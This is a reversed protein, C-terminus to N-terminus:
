LKYKKDIQNQTVRLLDLFRLYDTHEKSNSKIMELISKYDKNFNQIKEAIPECHMTLRHMLQAARVVTDNSYESKDWNNNALYKMFIILRDVQGKKGSLLESDPNDYSVEILITDNVSSRGSLIQTQFGDGIYTWTNNELNPSYSVIKGNIKVENPPFTLHMRIEYAREELMGSYSGQVPEVTVISKNGEKKWSVNTFAYEGKLYNDDNGADEYVSVNGSEGPIINLILPDVPKEKTNNMRPQMPIISGAKAFLPIDNLTYSREVVQGGKIITGTYWEYWDGEPLWINKNVYLSDKGIPKTVPNVLLDNGFMYENPFQYANEQRPNDYYMPRCISIGSDFAERAATYIYPILSYRTVYAQRMPYFYELPYGWIRREICPNKTQHTRLIPSFAGFQLWRTYMEGESCGRMHGGIDHSWYGFGVNAATSTFYPQFNLSKWTIYTDGSFGIEYRHNGLGGYRHFILPRTKNERKMDSFFVYNLYFTPNVDKITTTSWQQWDLWWFDIGDSMMPHLVKSMFNEAFRKNVIDFPVYKNSKPDINMARAMERYQVEHPQIGSAPHLNLCVKLNESESWDLFNKPDPFYNKNWTFGTWGAHQGAQDLIIKGDDNYWEPKTTIHWDMDVVLVDLPVDHMKFANVLERLELDTYEWYRSWWTGFAFRPPIPIKGAIETYYKLASKYDYGYCFFYFDQHPNNPREMVWQWETNDFLPRGTDDILVWGDRSIIGTGLDIVEGSDGRHCGNYGDLTRTTGKLNGTNKTNLTWQKDENDMNFNIKLNFDTFKGSGKKYRLSLSETKIILWGDKERISFEPVPLNRNVFVLSAHDEFKANEAWEMRVVGSTLITFRVNGTKIVANPNALPNYQKAIILVPIFLFMFLKFLKFIRM